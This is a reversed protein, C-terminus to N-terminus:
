DKFKIIIKTINDISEMSIQHNLQNFIRKVLYLGMGTAENSYNKANSGTFGKDFVRLIDRSNVGYGESMIILQKENGRITVLSNDFSYKIANNLIQEFCYRIGIKDSTIYVNDLQLDIRISKLIFNHKLKKIVF